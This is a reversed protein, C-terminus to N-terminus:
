ANINNNINSKTEKRSKKKDRKLATDISPITVVFCCQM